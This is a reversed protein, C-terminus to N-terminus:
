EAASAAADALFALTRSACNEWSFHAAREFSANALSHRLDASSMMAKIAAAVSEESVPDFYIGAAGLVEPMPGRESSMIPLGAAMAELMINPLNECSSAFLFGDAQQYYAHLDDFSVEGDWLLFDRQPDLAHCLRAFARGYRGWSAGVFRIEVSVGNRRLGAVARAVTQQHKYPMTISVYLLRFPRQPGVDPLPDRPACFFRREIGHPVIATRSHALDVVAGIADHAYQTLFLIGDARRFSAAQVHRLLWLKARMRSLKGFRAAEAPEFPLMNQSMTVVPLDCRLPVTGGPSFLLQCGDRRAEDVLRFQQYALRRVFSGELWAGSKIELWPRTPLSAHVRRCAWVTIKSIGSEDPNAHALLQSLHTLGGGGRINSADIGLHLPM